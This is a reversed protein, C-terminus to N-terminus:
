VDRHLFGLETLYMLGEACDGALLIQIRLENARAVLGADVGDAWVKIEDSLDNQKLYSDLSGYECYELVVMLPDGLTVVGILRVLHVHVFQLLCLRLSKATDVFFYM